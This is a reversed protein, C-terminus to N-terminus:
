PEESLEGFESLVLDEPRRKWVPCHKSVEERFWKWGMPMKTKFGCCLHCIGYFITLFLIITVIIYFLGKGAVTEEFFWVLSLGFWVLALSSAIIMIMNSLIEFLQACCGYDKSIRRFLYGATSLLM